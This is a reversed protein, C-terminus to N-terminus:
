EIVRLTRIVAPHDVFLSIDIERKVQRLIGKIKEKKVTKIAVTKRTKVDVAKRVAGYKGEGIVPGFEYQVKIDDVREVGLHPSTFDDIETYDQSIFETSRITTKARISTKNGCAGM